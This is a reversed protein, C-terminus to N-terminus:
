AEVLEPFPIVDAKKRVPQHHYQPESDVLRISSTQSTSSHSTSNLLEQYRDRLTHFSDWMMRSIELTAAMPSASRERAMDVRWQLRKLRMRAEEPANEIARYITEMRKSEFEEPDNLALDMWYSFDWKVSQNSQKM